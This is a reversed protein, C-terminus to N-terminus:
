KLATRASNFCYTKTKAAWVGGVFFTTKYGYEDLIEAIKKVNDTNEYVNFMLSVSGSDQNGEYIANNVTQTPIQESYTAVFAIGFTM